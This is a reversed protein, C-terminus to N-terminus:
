LSVSFFVSTLIFFGVFLFILYCYKKITLFSLSYSISSNFDNIPFMEVIFDPFTSLPSSIKIPKEIVEFRDLNDIPQCHPNMGM